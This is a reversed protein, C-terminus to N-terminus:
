LPGVKVGDVEWSNKRKLSPKGSGTHNNRASMNNKTNNEPRRECRNWSVRNEELQVM